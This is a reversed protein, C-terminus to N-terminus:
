RRPRGSTLIKRAAEIADDAGALGVLDGARLRESADAARRDLRHRALDRARDRRQARAPELEALTRRM